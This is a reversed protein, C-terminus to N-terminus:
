ALQKAERDPHQSSPGLQELLQQRAGALEGVATLLEVESADGFHQRRAAEEVAAQALTQWTQAGVRQGLDEALAAADRTAAFTKALTLNDMRGLREAIEAFAKATRRGQRPNQEAHRRLERLEAQFQSRETPGSEPEAPPQEWELDRNREAQEQFALRQEETPRTTGQTREIPVRLEHNETEVRGPRARLSELERQTQRERRDAASRERKAVDLQHRLETLRADDRHEDQRLKDERTELATRRKTETEVTRRLLQELENRREEVRTLKTQSERLDRELQAIRRPRARRSGAPEAQSASKPDVTM